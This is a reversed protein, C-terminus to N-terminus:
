NSVLRETILNWAEFYETKDAEKIWFMNMKYKTGAFAAAVDKSPVIFTDPMVAGKEWKLDVFAYFISPGALTGAKTGVHWEWHNSLPTKKFSRWAGNSTKVQVSIAANGSVDGVMLDISQSGGRTLAVPFGMAALRFAVFHEGAAGTVAHGHKM